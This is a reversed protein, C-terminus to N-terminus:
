WAAKASIGERRMARICGCRSADRFKRRGASAATTTSVTCAPARSAPSCIFRGARRRRGSAPPRRNMGGRIALANAIALGPSPPPFSNLKAPPRPFRIASRIPAFIPSFFKRGSRRATNWCGKSGSTMSRPCRLVRRRRGRDQSRMSIVCGSGPTRGESFAEGFGLRGALDCFIAYDDRAEGVPPIQASMAIMFGDHGGSGIDERELSTTAPLVIDSFKAQATWYQEHVVVTEPRRWAECLRNIDQHHHFANGGAWYVLRIDPYRRQQGDFEYTEGPHLLMDSLRAVPIVSDVANEGAPLRPGSFAKRVAGALNTCAYGFGLGGGPTGLQGLLATLAVTAWYAQEGQRARQISWSINVMTRHRAMERALDAIRQADLGTIAAAWAPTKAVGDHEGLLYACYPAFGVTHSAVFAQDYLSEAILVYSLALLLATDTGPQIALWEADPVASLDNRVPSINIFRTGNAQMKDLWYQLMHDNAGGGNVQANRLPLGGIAVFLQCERALESFHTHQRHLPSLPGLIHPLIREGAASSYTNTSATYGGFGKLFRHLQSQAHHFRGASAWGYSGGYIAENGCRAKVSRLERALLDLAVEWSVEVFPEKGRGERSAPGHQLYGARVAPRRIRTQSTVADPLSQGIRSPNKDWPVPKVAVIEGESSEVQWTGWHMVTYNHQKKM